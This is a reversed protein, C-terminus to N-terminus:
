KVYSIAISKPKDKEPVKRELDISLIGDRTIAGVVEVYEALPFSRVFNRSSIGRHLYEVEAVDKKSGSITLINKEITVEVEGERFGAVAVEITFHDDDVRIINHPPYNTQQTNGSIRFLEDLMSDFGVGFKHIQPLDLTRITLTNNQTM